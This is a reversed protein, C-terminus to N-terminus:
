EVKLNIIIFVFLLIIIIIINIINIIIIKIYYYILIIYLIYYIKFNFLFFSFKSNSNNNISSLTVGYGMGGVVLTSSIPAIGGLGRMDSYGGGREREGYSGPFNSTKNLISSSKMEGRSLPKEGFRAFSDLKRRHFSVEEVDEKSESPINDSALNPFATLRTSKPTLSIMPLTNM